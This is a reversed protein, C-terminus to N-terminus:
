KAFFPQLDGIPPWGSKAIDIDFVTGSMIYRAGMLFNGDRRTLSEVRVVDM